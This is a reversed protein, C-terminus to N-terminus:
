RPGPAGTLSADSLTTTPSLDGCDVAYLGELCARAAPRAALIATLEDETCEIHEAALQARMLDRDDDINM